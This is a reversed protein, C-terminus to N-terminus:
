AAQLRRSLERACTVFYFDGEDSARHIYVALRQGTEMHRRPWKSRHCAAQAASIWDDGMLPKGDPRYLDGFAHDGAINHIEFVFEGADLQVEDFNTM